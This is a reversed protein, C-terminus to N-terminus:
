LYLVNLYTSKTINWVMSPHVKQPNQRMRPNIQHRSTQRHIPQDETKDNHLQSSQGITL